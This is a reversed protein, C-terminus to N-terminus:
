SLLPTATSPNSSVVPLRAGSRSVGGSSGDGPLFGTAAPRRPPFRDPHRRHAISVRGSRYGAKRRRHAEVVTVETPLWSVATATGLCTYSMVPEEAQTPYALKAARSGSTTKASHPPAIASLTSRRVRSSAVLVPMATV